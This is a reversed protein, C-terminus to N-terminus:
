QSRWSYEQPSRQEPFNRQTTGVSTEHYQGSVATVFQQSVGCLMWSCRLRWSCRPRLTFGRLYHEQQYTCNDAKLVTAYRETFWQWNCSHTVTGTGKQMTWQLQQILTAVKIAMQVNDDWYLVGSGTHTENRSIGWTFKTHWNQKCTVLKMIPVGWWINKPYYFLALHSSTLSHIHTLSLTLSGDQVYPPSAFHM